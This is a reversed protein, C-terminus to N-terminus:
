HPVAAVIENTANALDTAAQTLAAAQDPTPTNAVAAQIAAVEGQLTAVSAQISALDDALAMQTEEIRQLVLYTSIGVWYQIEQVERESV